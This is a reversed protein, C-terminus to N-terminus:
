GELASRAEKLKQIIAITQPCEPECLGCEICQDAGENRGKMHGYRFSAAGFDGLMSGNNWLEFVGPINVGQPCPMCYECATCPVAMLAEYEAKVASMLAREADDMCGIEAQDFIRLNEELQEMTNIGSLVVSIGAMDYVDRFCWEAASRKHPFEDYLKQVSAPPNALAGGRLPEMACVALGKDHAYQVGEATAQYDHDLVNMQVNCMAWDHSDVIRKFLEANDHFSFGLHRIKGMARAKEMMGFMDVKLAHAYSDENLSHALMVDIYDSQLKKLQIDLISFFDDENTILRPQIKTVAMVKERYGGSLAEGLMADSLGGLYTNASDFYNVGHEVAHRILTNAFAQDPVMEGKDNKMQPMRMCGFGFVSAEFDVKKGYPRYKM